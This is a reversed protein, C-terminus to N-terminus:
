KCKEARLLEKQVALMWCGAERLNELTLGNWVLTAPIWEPAVTVRMEAITRSIIQIEKEAPLYQAQVRSSVGSERQPLTIRTEVRIREKGRQVTVTAPKEETFKELLEVYQRASALPKGDLAILRDGSKLPGSYKGPLSTVLVGPAPDDVKFGFGGLDLAAGTGGPIRTSALVDNRENADFKTPQIWYCRAFTPSTTECDISLPFADRKHRALWQILAAANFNGSAPKWELNLKAATLKEVMPRSEDQSLWLLPVLTSNAAFIRNSDIAAKPSGGLAAGAAWLDPMRSIAYFVAAVADGRGAIYVRAPDVSGSQIASEVAAALARVRSDIDPALAGPPAIVQWGPERTWIQWQVADAADLLAVAPTKIPAAPPQTQAAPTQTQAAPAPTQAAPTQATQAGLPWCLLLSITACARVFENSWNRSTM